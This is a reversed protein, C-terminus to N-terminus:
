KKSTKILIVKLIKNKFWELNKTSTMQWSKQLLIDLRAQM